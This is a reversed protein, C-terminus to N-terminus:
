KKWGKGVMYQHRAGALNVYHAIRKLAEACLQDLNM